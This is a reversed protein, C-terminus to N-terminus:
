AANGQGKKQGQAWRIQESKVWNRVEIPPHTPMESMTHAPWVGFKDRYKRAAWGAKYNRDRAIWTLAGFWLQKTAMDFSAKKGALQVLDGDIVDIDSPRQPAFGCEPCAHVGAPKLLHCGPCEKPLKIVERKRGGTAAKREGKDMEDHHIDTVFGLRLTTDSHDLILADEKGDATRLARGVIQQYLAESKTPRALILCRVDWDIGTTLTGINCVVRIDGDHFARRIVERQDRDTYADVYAATVGARLFDTYLKQAHARNVGFCLTPRNEGLALWTKVVDATLEPKSMADALEDVQYDGAVTRVGSLDPHSPAFVRFDSLFGRDILQRTTAAVILDDYHKGLGKTWPTASLGIFPLKPEDAMWGTIAKHIRHAEDVIVLETNPRARRALTDVSAIQVPKWDCTLPHDAQIVGIETIGEAGFAAVTQDVLSISPVCFTVRNGKQLASQVAAASTLTKGGGTPLLLM